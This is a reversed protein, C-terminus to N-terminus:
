GAAKTSPDHVQPIEGGPPRPPGGRRILTVAALAALAALAAAALFALRFGATLAADPALGAALSRTTQATAITAAIALGLSGGIQQSSNILGSALGAQQPATGAQSGITLAVFALGLGAGILLSPGLIGATFSSTDTVQALWALGAAFLILGTVVTPKIGARSVLRSALGAAAIITVALPLQSLGTHLASYRLVQQEYLSLVFFLSLLAAGTPLMIVNAARLMPLKFISFPFLPARARREIAVFATLLAAAAALSGITRPSAWGASSAGVLGYVLAGLGATVTVAGGLDFGRGQSPARSEAILRPAATACAIGIPVNVFLTYRWGLTTTLVGGLLVGAAAGSGAVSGWIGMAKNREPGEAFTATVLSLASAALVAAALGQVARAAVLAAGSPALGGALSAASFVALSAMFMRRRGLLDALRGGLLLFGGFTLVYANVVWSLGSQSLGLARGISPLAVNVISADLIVMFDAMALVALAIWRRRYAVAATLAPRAPTGAPAARRTNGGDPPRSTRSM